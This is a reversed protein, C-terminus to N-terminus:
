CLNLCDIESAKIHFNIQGSIRAKSRCKNEGNYVLAYLM